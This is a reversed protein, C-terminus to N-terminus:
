AFHIRSCELLLINTKHLPLMKRNLTWPNIHFLVPIYYKALHALLLAAKHCIHSLHKSLNLTGEQAHLLDSWSARNTYFKHYLKIFDGLKEIKISEVRKIPFTVSPQSLPLHPRIGLQFPQKFYWVKPTNARVDPTVINDRVFKCPTFLDEDPLVHHPGKRHCNSFCHGGFYYTCCIDQRTTTKPPQVTYSFLMRISFSLGEVNAQIIYKRSPNTVEKCIPKTPTSAQPVNPVCSTAPDATPLSDPVYNGLVESLPAVHPLGPM